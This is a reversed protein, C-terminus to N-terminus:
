RNHPVAKFIGATTRSIHQVTAGETRVFQEHYPINDILSPPAHQPITGQNVTPCGSVSFTLSISYPTPNPSVSQLGGLNVDPMGPPPHEIARRSPPDMRPSTALWCTDHARHVLKARSSVARCSAHIEETASSSISVM